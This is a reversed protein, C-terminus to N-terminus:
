KGNIAETLKSKTKYFLRKWGDCVNQLSRIYTKLYPDAEEILKEIRKDDFTQVKVDQIKNM